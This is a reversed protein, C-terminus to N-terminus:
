FSNNYPDNLGALINYAIFCYTPFTNPYYNVSLGINLIISDNSSLSQVYGNINTNDGPASGITYKNPNAFYFSIVSLNFIIDNPYPYPSIASSLIFAPRLFPSQTHRYFQWKDTLQNGDKSLIYFL